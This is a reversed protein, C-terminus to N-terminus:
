IPSPPHHWATLCIWFWHVKFGGPTRSFWPWSFWAHSRVVRVTFYPDGPYRKRRDM